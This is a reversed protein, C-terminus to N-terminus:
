TVQDKEGNCDWYRAGRQRCDDNIRCEYGGGKNGKNPSAIIYQKGHLANVGGKGKPNRVTYATHAVTYWVCVQNAEEGNANCGYSNGTTWARGVNFGGSIWQGFNYTMSYGKTFTKGDSNSVSCGQKKTCTIVESIQEHYYRVHPDGDGDRRPKPKRRCRPQLRNKQTSKQVDLFEEDTSRSFCDTTKNGVVGEPNWDLGSCQVLTYASNFARSCTPGGSAEPKSHVLFSANGVTFNGSGDDDVESFSISDKAGLTRNCTEAILTGNTSYASLSTSNTEKELRWVIRVETAWATPLFLFAGYLLRM